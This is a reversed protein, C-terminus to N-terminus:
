NSTDEIDSFHNEILDNSGGEDYDEEIGDTMEDVDADPGGEGPEETSNDANESISEEHISETTGEYKRQVYKPGSSSSGTMSRSAGKIPFSSKGRRTSPVTVRARKLPIVARPPAPVRGHYDFLRNYFDDRYYDYDFEYGSYLSSLPRKSGAKPRYPKPEGAMNIDKFFCANRPTDSVRLAPVPLSTDLPQGAIIRANEGAVAARANRESMYQVFAYGKHVSCGVIKGYKAFIAEIDAKKVIVTNLNGIFVRSNISRPDNKNTVNSTQTKGTM